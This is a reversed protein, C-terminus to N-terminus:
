LFKYVGIVIFFLLTIFLIINTFLNNRFKNMLKRNSNFAILILALFPLFLSGIVAYLKQIESFSYFLGSIPIITIGALYLRYAKSNTLEQPNLKTNNRFFVNWIDAFLYPVSQWVGLLSSFVASFAGILFLWKGFAGLESELKDSLKVLLDAGSGSIQINSGIIIMAMGFLVTVFYGFKLDIRITRIYSSDNRGEEAIWYGYCLITLTGGVGGILAMTWSIGESHFTPLDPVFIGSILLNFDPLMLISTVIVTLFMIGVTIGMIREFLRFGGLRVLLYGTFASIIGFIIKGDSINNFYPFIAHLTIGCASILASGVFFTWLLLYPLFLYGFVKGTKHFVGEIITKGTVLQWRAIGETLFYKLIGGAIVAWLLMVGFKSGAISATALDGAGVGTAAVLIGPLIIKLFGSKSKKKEPM